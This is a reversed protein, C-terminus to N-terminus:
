RNKKIPKHKTPIQVHKTEQFLVRERIQYKAIPNQILNPQDNKTVIKTTPKTNPTSTFIQFESSHTSANTIYNKNKM